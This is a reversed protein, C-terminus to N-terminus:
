IEVTACSNNFSYEYVLNKITKNLLYIIEENDSNNKFELLKKLINKEQNKEGFNITNKLLEDYIESPIKYQIMDRIQLGTYMKQSSIFNRFSEIQFSGIDIDYYPDDGVYVDAHMAGMDKAIFRMSTCFYLAGKFWGNDYFWDDELKLEPFYRKLYDKQAFVENHKGTTSKIFENSLFRYKVDDDFYIEHEGMLFMPRNSEIKNILNLHQDVYSHYEKSAMNKKGLIM